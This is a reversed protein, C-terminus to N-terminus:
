RTSSATRSSTCRTSRGELYGDILMKVPGILRELSPRDGYNVVQSVIKGGM